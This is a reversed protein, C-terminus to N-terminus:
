KDGNLIFELMKFRLALAKVRRRSLSVLKQPEFYAGEIIFYKGNYKWVSGPTVHGDKMM